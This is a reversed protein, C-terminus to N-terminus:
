LAAKRTSNRHRKAQRATPSDGRDQPLSHQKQDQGSQPAAPVEKEAAPQETQTYEAYRRAKYEAHQLAKSSAEAGRATNQFDM